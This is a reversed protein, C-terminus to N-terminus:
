QHTIVESETFHKTDENLRIDIKYDAINKGPM